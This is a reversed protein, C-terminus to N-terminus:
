IGHPLLAVRGEIHKKVEVSLNEDDVRLTAM